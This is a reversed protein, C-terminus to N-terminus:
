EYHWEPHEGSFFAKVAKHADETRSSYTVGLDDMHFVSRNFMKVYANISAKTMQVPIPPQRM